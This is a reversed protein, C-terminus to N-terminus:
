FNVTPIILPTLFTLILVALLSGIVTLSVAEYGRGQLLLRHGPLVSLETGGEPAGLFISPTSDVFTNTITVAVIFLALTLPSFYQLLFLSISFLFISVLNPHIGPLLGAIVGFIIGILIALFIELLM